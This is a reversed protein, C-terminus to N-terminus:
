VNVFSSAFLTGLIPGGKGNSDEPEGAAFGSPTPAADIAVNAQLDLLPTAAALSALPATWLAINIFKM